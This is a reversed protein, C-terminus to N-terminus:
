DGEWGIPPIETLDPFAISPLLASPPFSTLEAYPGSIGSVGRAQIGPNPPPESTRSTQFNARQFVGLRYERLPRGSGGSTTVSAGWQLGDIFGTSDIFSASSYRGDSTDEPRFSYVWHTVWYYGGTISFIGTEGDGVPPLPLEYDGPDVPPETVRALPYAVPEDPRYQLPTPTTYLQEWPLKRLQDRAAEERVAQVDLRRSLRERNAIARAWAADVISAAKISVDVLIGM